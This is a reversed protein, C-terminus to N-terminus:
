TFSLSIKCNYQGVNFKFHLLTIYGKCIKDNTKCEVRLKEQEISYLM